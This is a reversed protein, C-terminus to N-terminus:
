IAPDAAEDKKIPDVPYLVISEIGERYAQGFLYASLVALYPTLLIPVILGFLCLVFTSILIQTLFQMVLAVVWVLLTAIIFGGINARFIKWWDSIKFIAAFSRKVTVHVMAAPLPIGVLFSYVMACLMALIIFMSSGMLLPALLNAARDDGGVAIM